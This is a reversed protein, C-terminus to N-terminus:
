FNFFLRPHAEFAEWVTLEGQLLREHEQEPVKARNLQETLWLREAERIRDLLSDDARLNETEGLLSGTLYSSLLGSTMDRFGSLTEAIQEVVNEGEDDVDGSHVLLVSGLPECLDRLFRQVVHMASTLSSANLPAEALMPADDNELDTQEGWMREELAAPACVLAMKVLARIRDFPLAAVFDEDEGFMRRLQEGDM